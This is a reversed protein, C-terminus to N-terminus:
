LPIPFFIHAVFKKIIAACHIFLIKLIVADANNRILPVSWNKM